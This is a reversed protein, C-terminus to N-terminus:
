HRVRRPRRLALSLIAGIVALAGPEPVAEYVHVYDVQLNTTSSGLSGYGSLPMTGAWDGDRVESSLIMYEPRASVNESVVWLSKNDYFFEYGSPSWKLAYTHWSGNGLGSQAGYTTSVQQHEPGYGNWHISSVYRNSIDKDKSNVARHEAVDIETGYTAPDGVHGDFVPSTLWFASWEAPASNFKMRAEFYGYTQEFKGQSGIMGTYNTGADTYTTITLVGAGVSVANSTNTADNRVGPLRNAWKSGDLTSGSFEDAFTLNWNAPDDTVPFAQVTRGGIWNM